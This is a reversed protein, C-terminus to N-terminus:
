AKLNSLNLSLSFGHSSKAANHYILRLSMVLTLPPVGYPIPGWWSGNARGLEVPSVLIWIGRNAIVVFVIFSARFLM